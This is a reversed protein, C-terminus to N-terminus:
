DDAPGPRSIEVRESDEEAYFPIQDGQGLGWEEAIPRPITVTVSGATEQVTRTDAFQDEIGGM